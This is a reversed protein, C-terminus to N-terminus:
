LEDSPKDQQCNFCSQWKRYSWSSNAKASFLRKCLHLLNPISVISKENKKFKSKTLHSYGQATQSAANQPLVSKARVYETSARLNEPNRLTRIQVTSTQLAAINNRGVSPPLTPLPM